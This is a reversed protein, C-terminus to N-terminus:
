QPNQVRCWENRWRTGDWYQIQRKLNELYQDNLISKILGKKKLKRHIEDNGDVSKVWIPKMMQDFGFDFGPLVNVGMTTHQLTIVLVSDSQYALYPTPLQNQAISMDSTPLKIYFMEAISPQFGFGRTASSETIDKIKELNLVVISPDHVTKNGVITDAADNSGLLVVVNDGAGALKTLYGSNLHGYHWYTGIVKGSKDIRMLGTPSRRGACTLFVGQGSNQRKEPMLLYRTSFPEAYQFPGYRLKAQFPIQFRLSKDANFVRLISLSADACDPFVASVVIENRDDGDLDAVAVAKTGIDVSDDRLGSRLYPLEWLLNNDKNFVEIRYTNKNMLVSVPNDDKAIRNVMIMGGLVCAAVIGLGSAAAVAPRRRVFSVFRDIATKKQRAEVEFVDNFPVLKGSSPVLSTSTGVPQKELKVLDQVAGSYQAAIEEALQRCTECELFHEEIVGRREEIDPSHLVYLELIHEDIHNM